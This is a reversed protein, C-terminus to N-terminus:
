SLVLLSSHVHYRMGDCDCGDYIHFDSFLEWLNGILLIIFEFISGFSKKSNLEPIWDLFFVSCWNYM